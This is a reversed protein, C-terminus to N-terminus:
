KTRSISVYLHTCIVSSLILRRRFNYLFSSFYKGKSVAYLYVVTLLDGQSMGLGTERSMFGSAMISAGNSKPLLRAAGNVYWCKKQFCFQQVAVEDHGHIMKPKSSTSRVSRNGGHCRNEEIVYHDLMEGNVVDVHYAYMNIGGTTYTYLM